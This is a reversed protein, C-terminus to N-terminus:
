VLHFCLWRASIFLFFNKGFNVRIMWFSFIWNYYPFGSYNVIRIKGQDCCCFVSNPNLVAVSHQYSNPFRCKEKSTLPSRCARPLIFRKRWLLWYVSLTLTLQVQRGGLYSCSRIALNWSAWGKAWIWRSSSDRTMNRWYMTKPRNTTFSLFAAETCICRAPWARM